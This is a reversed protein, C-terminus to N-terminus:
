TIHPQILLWSGRWGHDLRLVPLLRILAAPRSLRFLVFGFRVPAVCHVDRRASERSGAPLCEPQVWALRVWDLGEVGAARLPKKEGQNLEAVRGFEQRVINELQEAANM